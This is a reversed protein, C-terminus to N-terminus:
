NRCKKTKRKKGSIAGYKLGLCNEIKQIVRSNPVAKGNEYSQITTPKVNLNHALQKQSMGANVRCQQIARSIVLPVKKLKFTETENEINKANTATTGMIGRASTPKNIQYRPIKSCSSQVRKDNNTTKRFVVKEWDQHDYSM